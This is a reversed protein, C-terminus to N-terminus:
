IEDVFKKIEKKSKLTIINPVSSWKTENKIELNKDTGNKNYTWSSKIEIVQGRFQYDPNYIHQQENLIYSVPNPTTIEQLLGKNEMLELFFFEYSGQFTLNTNKYQKVTFLSNQIKKYIEPSQSQHRHGFHQICTKESKNKFDPHEVYNEVGYKEKMTASRQKKNCYYKDSYKESKTQESKNKFDPHEVYNEVGYLEKMTNIRKQIINHDKLPNDVGYIELWTTKAKEKNRYHENGYLEIKTKKSKNQFEETQTYNGSGYLDFMTKTRKEKTINSEDSCKKSCFDLLKSANTWSTQNNCNKCKPFEYINKRILECRGVLTMDIPFNSTLEFILKSLDPNIKNLIVFKSPSVEGESDIFYNNIHTKLCDLTNNEPFSALTTNVRYQIGRSQHPDLTNWAKRFTKDMDPNQKFFERLDLNNCSDLNKARIKNAIEIM